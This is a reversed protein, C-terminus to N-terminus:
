YRGHYVACVNIAPSGVTLQQAAAEECSRSGLSRRMRLRWPLAASTASATPPAAAGSSPLM